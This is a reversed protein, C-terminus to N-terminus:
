TITAPAIQSGSTSAGTMQTLATNIHMRNTDVCYIAYVKPVFLCSLTVYANLILCFGLLTVQHYAYFSSLYTPLFASWLILTTAVSLFIYWSENFNEPLRRTLFGYVVCLFVIILNYALPLILGYLSSYCKLEVLKQTSIPMFLVAESPNQIVDVTIIICQM